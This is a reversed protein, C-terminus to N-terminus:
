LWFVIRPSTWNSHFFILADHLRGRTAFINIIKISEPWCSVVQLAHKGTQSHGTERRGEDREDGQERPLFLGLWSQVSKKIDINCQLSLMTVKFLTYCIKIINCVQHSFANQGGCSESQSNGAFFTLLFFVEHAKTIQDAPSIVQFGSLKVTKMDLKALVHEM